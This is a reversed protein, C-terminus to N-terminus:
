MSNENSFFNVDMTKGILFASMVLATTTLAYLIKRKM